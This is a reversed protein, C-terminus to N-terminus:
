KNLKKAVYYGDVAEKCWELWIKAPCLCYNLKHWMAIAETKDQSSWARIQPSCNKLAWEETLSILKSAIGQRRHEADVEIIDIYIDQVQALPPTLNKTYASIFGIPMDDCLAALSYSGEESHIHKEATEGYKGAIKKLIVSDIEKYIIQM